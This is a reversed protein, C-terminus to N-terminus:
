DEDGFEQLLGIPKLNGDPYQKCGYVDEASGETFTTGPCVVVRVTYDADGLGHVSKSPNEASANLLSLAARNGNSRFGGAFGNQRNNAEEFWECQTVENASWLAFNGEAVRLLPASTSSQSTGSSQYTTNCFSIGTRSLNTLEWSDFTGAGAVSGSDVRLYLANSSTDVACAGAPMTQTPDATAVIQVQDGPQFGSADSVTYVYRVQVGQGCGKASSLFAFDTAVPFTFLDSSTVPAPNTNLAMCPTLQAIDTGNYYKAWSHADTPLYARELVTESATDVVRKGGYLIKRVVDMRSMAAWNLFNGSWAGSCYHTTAAGSPEFRGDTSDYTYCKQNNFYGYYDITNDYTTEITGDDNLDSFDNYAKYFLQHDKSMNIIAMPPVPITLFLPVDSIAAEARPASLLLPLALLTGTLLARTKTHYHKSMVTSW